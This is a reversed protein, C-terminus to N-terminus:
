ESSGSLTYKGDPSFSLRNINEAHHIQVGINIFASSHAVLDIIRKM